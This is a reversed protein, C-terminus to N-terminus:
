KRLMKLGEIANQNDPNLELSKELAKICEEKKGNMYYIEALSDWANWSSPFLLTNLILLQESGYPNREYLLYGKENIGTELNESTNWWSLDQYSQIIEKYRAFAAEAGQSIAIDELSMAANDLIVTLVPDVGSYYERGTILVPVDIKFYERNSIWANDILRSAISLSAGCHPLTGVPRSNSFLNSPCASPSGVFIAETYELLGNAMVIAASYTKSGIIVFLRGRSNIKDRKIIEKIFPISIRGNGGTNYRLDIILKELEFTQDIAAFLDSTFKGFSEGERGQNELSNIQCYISHQDELQQFWYNKEINKLHYPTSSGLVMQITYLESDKFHTDANFRKHVMEGSEDQLTLSVENGPTQIGIGNLILPYSLYSAARDRRKVQNDGSCIEELKQIAEEVPISNVAVVKCGILEKDRKDIAGVFYGDPLYDITWPLKLSTLDMKGNLYLNTHGDQLSAIVRRIAFFCEIDSESKEIMYRADSVATEFEEPSIRYYLNPHVEKLKALVFDLDAQWPLNRGEQEPDTGRTSIQPFLSIAALMPISFLLITIKSM